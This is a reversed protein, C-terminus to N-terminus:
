LSNKIADRVSCQTDWPFLSLRRLLLLIGCFHSAPLLIYMNCIYMNCIYM